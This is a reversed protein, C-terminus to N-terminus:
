AWPLFYFVLSCARSTKTKRGQRWQVHHSTVGFNDSFMEYHTLVREHSDSM